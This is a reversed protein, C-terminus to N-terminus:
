KGVKRRDRDQGTRVESRDLKHPRKSNQKRRIDQGAKVKSM